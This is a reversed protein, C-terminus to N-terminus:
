RVLEAVVVETYNASSDQALRSVAKGINFNVGFDPGAMKQLVYTGEGNNRFILVSRGNNSDDSPSGLLFTGIGKNDQFIAVNHSERNVALTYVGAPLMKGGAYFSFPIQARVKPSFDQALAAAQLALVFLALAALRRYHEKMEAGRGVMPNSHVAKKPNSVM